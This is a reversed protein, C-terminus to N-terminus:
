FISKADTQHSKILRINLLLTTCLGSVWPGAYQSCRVVPATDGVFEPVTVAETVRRGAPVPSAGATPVDTVLWPWGASQSPHCRV